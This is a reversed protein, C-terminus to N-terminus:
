RSAGKYLITGKEVPAKRQEPVMKKTPVRKLLRRPFILCWYKLLHRDLFTGVFSITGKGIYTGKGAPVKCQTPVKQPYEM